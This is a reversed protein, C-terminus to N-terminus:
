LGLERIRKVIVDAAGRHARIGPHMRCGITEPTTDPLALYEARSHVPRMMKAGDQYYIVHVSM